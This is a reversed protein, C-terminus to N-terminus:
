LSHLHFIIFSIGLIVCHRHAYLCSLPQRFKCLAPAGSHYKPKRMYQL